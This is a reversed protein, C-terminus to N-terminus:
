RSIMIALGVRTVSRNYDILSDGYGNFFFPGWFFHNGPGPISYHVSIAGRRFGPNYRAMVHLMHGHFLKEEFDLQAYGYYDEIDPNDDRRPDTSPLHDNEPIRWWAKLRIMHNGSSQFPALYVRNWSRSNPLGKGNSNHEIGLDLGTHFWRDGDHPIFRYFVEPNYNTERFPRSHSGDYVDWFSKQTYAAYFAGDRPYSFLKLKFSIQFVAESRGGKYRSSFTYPELYIPKHLSLGSAAEVLPYADPDAVIGRRSRKAPQDSGLGTHSPEAQRDPPPSSLTTAPQLTIGVPAAQAQVTCAAWALALGAVRRAGTPQFHLCRAPTSRLTPM